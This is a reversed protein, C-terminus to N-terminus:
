SSSFHPTLPEKNKRIAGSGRKKQWESYLKRNIGLLGHIKKRTKYSKNSTGWMWQITNKKRQLISGRMDLQAKMSHYVQDSIEVEISRKVAEKLLTPGDGDDYAKQIKKFEEESDTQSTDPHTARALQRHLKKLEGKKLQFQDPVQPVHSNQDDSKKIDDVTKQLFLLEKRFDKKFGLEFSRDQLLFEEEELEILDTMLIIKKIKTTDPM